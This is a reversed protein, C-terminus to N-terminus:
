LYISIYIIINSIKISKNGNEESRKINKKSNDEETPLFDENRNMIMETAIFYM